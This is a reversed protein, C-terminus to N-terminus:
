AVGLLFATRQLAADVSRPTPEDPARYVNLNNVTIGGSAVPATPGIRGGPKVTGLDFTGANIAQLLGLHRRTAEANVVFEGNSAMIPVMDDRPGGPGRVLGGEAFGGPAGWEDSRTVRRHIETFTTTWYTNVHRGDLEDAKRDLQNAKALLSDLGPARYNTVAKEPIGLIRAIYKRTQEENLGLQVAEEYLTRINRAMAREAARLAAEEGKEAVTKDYVAMAADRAAEIGELIMQRNADGAKTNAELSRGNEKVEEAMERIQERFRIAAEEAKLAEENLLRLSDRLEKAERELDAVEKATDDSVEGYEATWRTANDLEGSEEGLADATDRSAQIERRKKAIADELAENQGNIAERVDRVKNALDSHVGGAAGGQRMNEELAANVRELADQEGLAADTVDRLSLGLEEAKELVGADSLAKAVAARTNDTLAGTQEDLTAKLDEVAQRAEAQKTAFYGVALTAAGIAIGWPGGLLSSLGSLSRRAVGGVGGVERLADRAERIRPAAVLAAGGVLAVASALTGLVVVSTKVPGPLDNFFDLLDTAAEAFKGIIPLLTEGLAIGLETLQNRAVKLQSETTAYRRSAEEVLANNEEWARAGTEVSNSLMEYAGSLRLVADRQRIETIGLQELIGFVDGGQAEVAALGREFAILAQAPDRRWQAAFQQATMGAVRAFDELAEGGENVAGTINIMITSIASGGAEAEIGVSSLANALALVDSEALGAQRGAGAIRLAMGVIEQETSAGDNGLAVIASGLRDVQSIPTGMINAFRAMATAAEDATLNTSVGMAIMVETFKAIDQRKVGLQGAAEAVAAVEEHTAPLTTALQRLQAELAAMQEPSGDVVKAVGAWASEWQIAERAALGLGAAIAAGAALMGKGLDAAAEEQDRMARELDDDLQKEIRMLELELSTLSDRYRETAQRARDVAREFGSSDGAIRIRLDGKAM